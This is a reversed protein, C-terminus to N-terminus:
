LLVIICYNESPTTSQQGWTLFCKAVTPFFLERLVPLKWCFWARSGTPHHPSTLFVNNFLALFLFLYHSLSDIDSFEPPTAFESDRTLKKQLSSPANFILFTLNMVKLYAPIFLSQKRDYKIKTIIKHKTMVSNLNPSLIQEISFIASLMLKVTMFSIPLIVFRQITIM